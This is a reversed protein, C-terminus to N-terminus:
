IQVLCDYRYWYVEVVLLRNVLFSQIFSSAVNALAAFVCALFIVVLYVLSHILFAMELYLCSYSILGFYIFLFTKLFRSVGGSSQIVSRLLLMRVLGSSM